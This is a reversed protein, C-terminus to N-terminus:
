PNRWWRLTVLMHLQDSKDLALSLILPAVGECGM